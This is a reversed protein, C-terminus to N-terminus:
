ASRQPFPSAAFLDDAVTQSFEGAAVRAALRAKLSDVTSMEVGTSKLAEAESHTLRTYHWARITRAQMEVGLSDKLAVFSAAYANSPRTL